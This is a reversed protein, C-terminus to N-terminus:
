RRGDPALDIAFRGVKWRALRAGKIRLRLHRASFRVDTKASLPYTGLDTEPGTPRGRGFIQAEVDGLTEVDPILARARMVAEGAGLMIPGTEAYPEAGLYDLGVEREYILGEGTVALPFALAGREAGCTGILSRHHTWANGRYDWV